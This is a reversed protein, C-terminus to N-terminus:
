PPPSILLSEIPSPPTCQVHRNKPHNGPIQAHIIGKGTTMWHVDERGFTEKWGMFDEHTFEGVVVDRTFPHGERLFNGDIVYMMMEHGCHPHDPFMLPPNVTIDSLTLYPSFTKYQPCNFGRVGVQADGKVVDKAKESLFRPIFASAPIKEQAVYHEDIVRTINSPM